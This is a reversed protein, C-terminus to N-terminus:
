RQAYAGIVDWVDPTEMGLRWCAMGAIAYTEMVSLKAEISESDEVWVQYFTGNSTMEGYNQCTEDDWTLAISNKALFNQQDPLPLADSTLETGKTKWVRTYFPVGNILKAKPVYKSMDAIGNEVFSISAVSGAEKSGAYHEDYGMIVVYDAFIGQETWYYWIRGGVPPYNDISLVIGRARCEISLERIFQIFHPGASEAVKEFDINFGDLGTADAKEMLQDIVYRRKASSSFIEGDDVSASFDDVLAWVELGRKHAAEVYDAAARSYVNGENDALYFWTPSIVNLGQTKGTLEELYDIGSYGGEQLQWGLIIKHDRKQSTYELDGYVSTSNALSEKETTINTLQKNEVYGQFGDATAVKSWTDMSDLIVTKDGASVHTLISSKIGGKVRVATDVTFEATKMEEAPKRTIVMRAPDDYYTMDFARFLRVFDLSFYLVEGRYFAPVYDTAVVTDGDRYSPEGITVELIRDPLTYRIINEDKNIYFRFPIFYSTVFDHSVYTFGNQLYGKEEMITRDMVLAVDEAGQIGFYGTRDAEEKSYSFKEEYVSWAGYGGILLILVVAILVPILRKM